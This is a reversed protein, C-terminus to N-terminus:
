AKIDKLFALTLTDKGDILKKGVNLRISHFLFLEGAYNIGLIFTYDGFSFKKMGKAEPKQTPNKIHFCVENPFDNTRQDNDNLQVEGLESTIQVSLKQDLEHTRINYDGFTFQM